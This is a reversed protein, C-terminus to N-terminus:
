GSKSRCRAATVDSLLHMLITAPSMFGYPEEGKFSLIITRAESHAAELRTLERKSARLMAM